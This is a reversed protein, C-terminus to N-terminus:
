RFYAKAKKNFGLYYIIVGSVILTIIDFSFISSIFSLVMFILTIIRAWRRGNWLGRAVLYGVVGFIMFVLGALIVSALILTAILADSNIGTKVAQELGALDLVDAGVIGAIFLILGFIFTLAAAVFAIISIVKVGTPRQRRVTLNSRANRSSTSRRGPKSRRLKVRAM